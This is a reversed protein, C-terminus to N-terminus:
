SPGDHSAFARRVVNALVDVLAADDGLTPAREFVLGLDKARAAAEIDLDYLTEVHDALFGVPANVVISKGGDRAAVLADDLTPGLWDGGDAGQSQYVIKADWGLESVIARASEEFLRQYPDGSAIVARPLSHASLVLETVAPDKGALLPRVRAVQATIFAPDTGYPAVPVLKVDTPTGLARAVVDAYVHVSFPAVPLVCLEKVGGAVLDKVVNEVLPDWFRMSVRTTMGLKTELARGLSETTDLLPSRRIARYRRRIEAVLEDSAPRGRRIRRLFEPVDALDVITGHGVILLARETTM